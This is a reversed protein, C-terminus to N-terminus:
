GVRIQSPESGRAASRTFARSEDSKHGNDALEIRKGDRVINFRSFPTVYNWKKPRVALFQCTGIRGSSRGLVSEDSGISNKFIGTPRLM